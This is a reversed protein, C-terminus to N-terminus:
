RLPFHQAEAVMVCTPVGCGFNPWRGPWTDALKWRAPNMARVVSSISFCYM